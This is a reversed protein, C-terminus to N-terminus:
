YRQDIGREPMPEPNGIRLVTRHGKGGEESHCHSFIFDGM